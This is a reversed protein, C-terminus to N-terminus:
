LGSSLGRAIGQDIEQAKVGRVEVKGALLMNDPRRGDGQHIVAVGNAPLSESSQIDPRVTSTSQGIKDNDLQSNNGM